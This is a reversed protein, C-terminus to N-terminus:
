RAVRALRHKPAVVPERETIFGRRAFEALVRLTDLHRMPTAELIQSVSLMGDILSLVFEERPTLGQTPRIRVILVSALDSFGAL